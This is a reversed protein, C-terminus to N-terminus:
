MAANASLKWFSTFTHISICAYVDFAATGKCDNEHQQLASHTTFQESCKNCSFRMGLHDRKFHQRLEFKHEYDNSCVICHFRGNDEDASAQEVEELRQATSDTQDVEEISEGTDCSFCLVLM